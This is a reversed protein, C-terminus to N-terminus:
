AFKHIKLIAKIDLSLIILLHFSHSVSEKNKIELYICRYLKEALSIFRQKKLELLLCYVLVVLLLVFGIVVIMNELAFIKVRCVDTLEVRNSKIEFDGNDMDLDYVFYDKWTRNFTDLTTDFDKHKGFVQTLHKQVMKFYMRDNQNYCINNGNLTALLELTSLYFQFILTHMQNKELCIEGNVLVLDEKCATM